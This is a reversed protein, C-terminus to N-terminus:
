PQHPDVPTPENEGARQDLEAQFAVRPADRDGFPAIADVVIPHPGSQWDALRLRPWADQAVRANVEDSVRAYLVAAKPQAEHQFIKFQKGLLAPMVGAELDSLFLGRHFKSQTMLWVVQGFVDAVTKRRPDVVASAVGM